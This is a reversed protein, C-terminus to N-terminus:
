TKGGCEDDRCDFQASYNILQEGILFEVAHIM